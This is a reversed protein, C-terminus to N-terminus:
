DKSRFGMFLVHQSSCGWEKIFEFFLCKGSKAGDLFSTLCKGSRQANPAHLGICRRKIPFPIGSSRRKHRAFQYMYFMLLRRIYRCVDIYPTDLQVILCKEKKR